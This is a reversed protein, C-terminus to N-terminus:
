RRLVRGCPGPDGGFDPAGRGPHGGSFSSGSSGGWSGSGGSSWSSGSRSWSGSDSGSDSHSMAPVPVVTRSKAGCHLCATVIEIEPQVGEWVTVARSLWGGCRPCNHRQEVFADAFLLVVGVGLFGAIYSVVPHMAGALWLVGGLPVTSLAFARWFPRRLFRHALFHGLGVLAFGLLTLIVLLEGWSLNVGSLPLFPRAKGAEGRTARFIEDLAAHLGQAYRGQRFRPALSERIIAGARGDPLVAELGYGVEIRLKRDQLAVLLLIGNDVGAKGLRWTTAVRHAFPELPEGHLSPLILIAVQHTTEREFAALRGILEERERATLINALDTVRGPPQPPIEFAYVFTLSALVALVALGLARWRFRSLGGPSVVGWLAPTIPAGFAYEMRGSCEARGFM